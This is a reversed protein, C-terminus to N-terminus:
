RSANLPMVMRDTIPITALGPALFRLPTHGRYTYSVTVGASDAPIVNNRSCAPWGNTQQVFDTAQGDVIPGGNLSYSFQNVAGAVEAGTSTSKYIRIEVVDSLALSTGSATLVREIAAVVQPDVTAANPSQGPSCGLTGGGNVLAGAVRAGERTSAGITLADSYAQTLEAVGFVLLLLLPLALALEVLAQGRESAVEGIRQRM